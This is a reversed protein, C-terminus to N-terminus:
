RVEEIQILHDCKYLYYTVMAIIYPILATWWWRMMTAVKMEQTVAQAVQLTPPNLYIRINSIVVLVRVIIVTVLLNLYIFRSNVCKSRTYIWYLAAMFLLNVAAIGILGVKHYIPNAELYVVLDGLILTSVLDSLFMIMFLTIGIVLGKKKNM